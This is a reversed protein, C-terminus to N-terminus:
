YDINVPSGDAPQILLRLTQPDIDAPLFRVSGDAYAVNVGGPHFSSISNAGSNIQFSMTDFDLDADPQTWLVPEKVEVVMLTNSTGDKIDRMRTWRNGGFMSDPAKDKPSHNLVVVYHTLNSMPGNDPASPCKYEDPMQNAIALNNPSDWPEDFNYQDYLDGREIYPLLAVRWSHKPKGEEDAVYGAPFAKNVDHYNHMALAIQKLNNSCQMRRAAERAAQVAPLLLAVMGGGGCICMVGLVIAVILPTNTKKPAPPLHQGVPALPKQQGTGLSNPITVTKGCGACPGSQGAYQDAVETFRGCHPCSFSIPM